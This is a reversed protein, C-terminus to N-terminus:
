QGKTAATKAHFVLDCVERVAGHGGPRATQFVVFPRVELYADAVAVPIGVARFAPIDNIDNGVFMVQEPPIALEACTALLAAAKDEVGQKFPMKLKGARVAVVPNTETSVILTHVGVSRVRALGLGDSRWCRVAESGDQGVYVFNDTLVGDFDFAILRVAALQDPGITPTSRSGTKSTKM